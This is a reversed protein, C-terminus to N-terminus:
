LNEKLLDKEAFLDNVEVNLVRAISPIDKTAPKVRKQMIAYFRKSDIGAKAAVASMKLGKDKIITRINDVVLDEICM